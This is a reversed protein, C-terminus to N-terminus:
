AAESDFLRKWSEYLERAADSRAALGEMLCRRMLDAKECGTEAAIDEIVDAIWKTSESLSVTLFKQKNKGEDRKSDDTTSM